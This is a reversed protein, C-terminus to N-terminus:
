VIIQLKCFAPVTNGHVGPFFDLQIFFESWEVAFYYNKKSGPSHSFMKGPLFQWVSGWKCKSFGCAPKWFFVCQFNHVGLNGSMCLAFKERRVIQPKLDM